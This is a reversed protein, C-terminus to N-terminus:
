DKLNIRSWVNKVIHYYLASIGVFIYFQLHEALKIELFFVGLFIFVSQCFMMAMLVQTHSLKQALFLHHLHTKDPKFPSRRKFLRRLMVFITDYVPLAVLYLASVPKIPASEGQSFYVLLWALIFGLLLSGNDGLFIKYKSTKNFFVFVVVCILLIFLWLNFTSQSSLGILVFVPLSFTMAALGDVGDAMNLANIVGVVGFVTFPIAFVGLYLDWSSNLLFGFTHLQIQSFYIVILSALIQILFRWFASLQYLDDLLGITVILGSALVLYFSFINVASVVPLLLASMMFLALGGVMPVPNSHIKRANPVDVLGIKLAVNRFFLILLLMGIAAGINIAFNDIFYNYFKM